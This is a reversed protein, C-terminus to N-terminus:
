RLMTLAVTYGLLGGTVLAALMGAWSFRVPDRRRHGAVPGREIRVPFRDVNSAM